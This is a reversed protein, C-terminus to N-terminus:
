SLNSMPLTVGVAFKGVECEIHFHGNLAIVREEIGTLGFGGQNMSNSANGNSGVGDDSITLTVTQEGINLLLTLNSAQSHKIANNVCEQTVRFFTIAQKDDLQEIDGTILCHYAIDAQKLKQTFYSGCLSEKLGLDDLIRPRLWNM